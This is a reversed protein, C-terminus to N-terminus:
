FVKREVKRFNSLPHDHSRLLFVQAQKTLLLLDSHLALCERFDTNGVRNVVQRRRQFKGVAHFNLTQASFVLADPLERLVNQLDRVFLKWVIQQFNEKM